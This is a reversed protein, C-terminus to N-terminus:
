NQPSRWKKFLSRLQGERVKAKWLTRASLSRWKYETLKELVQEFLPGTLKAFVFSLLPLAKEAGKSGLRARILLNEV